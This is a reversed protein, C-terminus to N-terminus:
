TIVQCFPRVPYPNHGVAAIGSVDDGVNDLVLDLSLLQIDYPDGTLSHKIVPGDPLGHFAPFDYLDTLVFDMKCDDSFTKFLREILAVVKAAVTDETKMAVRNFLIFHDRVLHFFLVYALGKGFHLFHFLLTVFFLPFEESLENGRADAAIGTPVSAGQAIARGAKYVFRLGLPHPFTDVWGIDHRKMKQPGIVAGSSAGITPCAFPDTRHIDGDSLKGTLEVFIGKLVEAPLRANPRILPGWQIDVLDIVIVIKHSSIAHLM